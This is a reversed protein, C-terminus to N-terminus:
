RDAALEDIAAVWATTMADSMANRQDPNDLTLLAVGDSPRDVRLHDPHAPMADLYEDRERCATVLNVPFRHAQRADVGAHRLTSGTRRCRRRVGAPRGRTGGDRRGFISNPLSATM